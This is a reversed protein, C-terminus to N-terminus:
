EKIRRSIILLYKKDYNKYDVYNSCTQLILVEDDENLKIGTDYLSKNKLINIHNHYDEKDIFNINM